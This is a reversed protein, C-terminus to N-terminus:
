HVENTTTLYTHLVLTVLNSYSAGYPIAGRTWIEWLVVGFSWVDSKYTFDSGISGDEQVDIIEKPVWRVPIIRNGGPLKMYNGGSGEAFKIFGVDSIKANYYTKQRGIVREVMINRAALNGHVIGCQQLYQCGEVIDLAIKGLTTQVCFFLLM